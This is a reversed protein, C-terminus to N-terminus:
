NLPYKFPGGPCRVNNSYDPDTGVYLYFESLHNENDREGNIFIADLTYIADLKLTIVIDQGAQNIHKSCSKIQSNVHTNGIWDFPSKDIDYNRIGM